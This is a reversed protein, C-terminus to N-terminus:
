FQFQLSTESETQGLWRINPASRVMSSQRRNSVSSGAMSHHNSSLWHGSTAEVINTLTSWICYQKKKSLCVGSDSFPQRCMELDETHFDGVPVHRLIIDFVTWQQILTSNHLAMLRPKCSHHLLGVLAPQQLLNSPTRCLNLEAVNMHLVKQRCNAANMCKVTWHLVDAM